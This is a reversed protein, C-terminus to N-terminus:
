VIIILEQDLFFQYYVEKTWVWSNV